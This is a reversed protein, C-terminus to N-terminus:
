NMRRTMLVWTLEAMQEMAEHLSADSESDDVDIRAMLDILVFFEGTSQDQKTSIWEPHPPANRDKWM